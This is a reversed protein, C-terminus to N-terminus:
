LGEFGGGSNKDKAGARIEKLTSPLMILLLMPWGTMLAYSLLALISFAVAVTMLQIENVSFDDRQQM